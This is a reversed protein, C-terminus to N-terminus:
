PSIDRLSLLPRPSGFARILIVVQYAGRAPPGLAEGVRFPLANKVETPSPSAGGAFGEGKPSPPQGFALRILPVTGTIFAARKLRLPPGQPRGRAPRPGAGVLIGSRERGKTPAPGLGARFGEGKLPSPAGSPPPHPHGRLFAAGLGGPQGGGALTGRTLPPHRSAAPPNERGFFM